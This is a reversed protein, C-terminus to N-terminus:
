PLVRYRIVRVTRRGAADRDAVGEIEVTDGERRFLESGPPDPLVHYERGSETVVSVATIRGAEDWDVAFVMGSLSVAEGARVQVALILSVVGALLVHRIYKKM